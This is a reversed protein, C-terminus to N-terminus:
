GAIRTSGLANNPCYRPVKGITIAATAAEIAWRYTFDAAMRREILAKPM